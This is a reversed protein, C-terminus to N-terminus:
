VGWHCGEGDIEDTELEKTGNEYVIPNKGMNRSAFTHMIIISM